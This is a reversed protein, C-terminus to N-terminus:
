PNNARCKWMGGLKQAPLLFSPHTTGPAQPPQLVWFLEWNDWSHFCCWGATSCPQWCPCSGLARGGREQGARMWVVKAASFCPHALVFEQFCFSNAANSVGAPDPCQQRCRESRTGAGSPISLEGQSRTGAGPKAEGLEPTSLQLGPALSSAQRLVSDGLGTGTM